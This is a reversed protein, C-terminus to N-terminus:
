AQYKALSRALYTLATGTGAGALSGTVAGITKKGEPAVAAGIGGGLVAGSGAGAAYQEGPTSAKIRALVSNLTERISKGDAPKTGSQLAERGAKVGKEVINLGEGALKKGKEVGKGVLEKGKEVGKGVLDKVKEVGEGVLEKGKELGKAKPDAGLAGAIVQAEKHMYGSLFGHLFANTKM